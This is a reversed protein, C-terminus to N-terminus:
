CLWFECYTGEILVHRGSSRDFARVKAYDIFGYHMWDFFEVFELEPLDAASVQRAHSWVTSGNPGDSAFQVPVDQYVSKPRVLLGSIQTCGYRDAVADGDLVMSRLLEREIALFSREVDMDLVGEGPMLYANWIHRSAEKFKQMQVSVNKM